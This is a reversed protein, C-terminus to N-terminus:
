KLLNRRTDFMIHVIYRVIIFQWKNNFDSQRNTKLKNECLYKEDDESRPNPVQRNTKLYRTVM